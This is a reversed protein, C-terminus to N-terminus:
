QWGHLKQGIAKIHCRISDYRSEIISSALITIIGTVALSLWPSYSYLEAAYRLHYALGSAFGLIGIYLVLRLEVVYSYVIMLIATTICFMSSALTPDEFLQNFAILMAIFAAVKRYAVGGSIAYVSAVVYIIAIPYIYLTLHWSLPIFQLISDAACWWSLSAMFLGFAQFGAGNNKDKLYCPVYAFFYVALALFLVSFMLATVQYLFMNRGLMFLAPSLLMLRCFLGEKTRMAAAAGRIFYIELYAVVYFQIFAFAIVLAPDRLPILLLANLAAYSLTLLKAESRALATFALGSIALLIVAAISTTIIAVGLSPAVWHVFAPYEVTYASNAPLASYLLAGLQCFHVPVIAAAVALFTRAGKDEKLRLGCLFGAGALSISFGLFCGYRMLHSMTQWSQLMFAGASVLLIITGIFRLIGPISRGKNQQKTVTINETSMKRDEM